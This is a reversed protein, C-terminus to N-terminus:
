RSSSEDTANDTGEWDPPDDPPLGLRGEVRGMSWALRNMGREIREIRRHIAKGNRPLPWDGTIMRYGIAFLTMLFACVAGASALFVIMEPSM